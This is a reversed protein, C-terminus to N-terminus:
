YETIAFVIEANYNESLDIGTKHVAISDMTDIIFFLSFDRPLM